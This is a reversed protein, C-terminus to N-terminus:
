DGGAPPRPRRNSLIEFSDLIKDFEPRAGQFRQRGQGFARVIFVRGKSLYLHILFHWRQGGCMVEVQAERGQVGDPAPLDRWEKKLVYDTPHVLNDDDRMGRPLRFDVQEPRFEELVNQQAQELSRANNIVHSRVDVFVYRSIQVLLLDADKHLLPHLLPDQIDKSPSFGWEKSPRTISFGRGLDVYELKGTTDVQEALMRKRMVGAVGLLEPSFLAFVFLVTFALGAILGFLALGVGALRERQRAISSLALAGLVAAVASGIGTFAGVLALVVSALALGSTRPPMSRLAPAKLTGQCEPCSVNQGALTDDLEFRAGCVCTLSLAM